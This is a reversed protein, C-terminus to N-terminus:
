TFYSIRKKFDTFGISANEEWSGMDGSDSVWKYAILPIDHKKCVQAIAYLEMDIVDVNELAAKFNDSYDTRNSDYFRDTTLCTVEGAGLTIMGLDTFPTEGFNALPSCDIDNLLNKVSMITGTDVDKISACSGFNIVLSPKYLNILRETEMAANIKGVGTFYIPYNLDSCDGVEAHTASLLLINRNM